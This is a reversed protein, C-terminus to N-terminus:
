LDKGTISEALDNLDLSHRDISSVVDQLDDHTIAIGESITNSLSDIRSALRNITGILLEFQSDTM